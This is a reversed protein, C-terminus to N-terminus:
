QKLLFSSVFSGSSEAIFTAGLGFSKLAEQQDAYRKQLREPLRGVLINRAEVVFKCDTPIRSIDGDGPQIYRNRSTGFEAFRRQIQRDVPEGWLYALSEIVEKDTSKENLVSKLAARAEEHL